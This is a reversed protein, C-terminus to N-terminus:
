FFFRPNAMDSTEKIFDYRLLAEISGSNHDALQSLTYDYAAGIGINSFQYFLLFDVSDGSGDGGVRYSVGFNFVKNFVFSLNADIDLPAGTVFKAMVAPKLAMNKSVPIYAGAMAYYHPKEEAITLGTDPNFGISSPLFHPVSVGFYLHKLTLYIGAGVNGKYQDTDTVEVVSPDNNQYLIVSPDSFDIGIRKLSGHIGIRFSTDDDIAINYAYAMSAQWNDMIGITQNAISLGFGIRKGLLPTNFSILKTEPAGPFSIWQKRYLATVSSMGRSGAVAPNLILKNFMFQTYQSEQQGFTLSLSIFFLVLVSLFKNM